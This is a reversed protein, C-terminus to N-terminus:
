FDVRHLQKGKKGGPVSLVCHTINEKHQVAENAAFTIM